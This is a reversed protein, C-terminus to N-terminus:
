QEGQTALIEAAICVGECGADGGTRRYWLKQNDPTLRRWLDALTLPSSPGILTQESSFVSHPQEGQQVQPAPANQRCALDEFSQGAAGRRIDQVNKDSPGELALVKTHPKTTTGQGEPTQEEESLPQEEGTLTQEDANLPQEEGGAHNNKKLTLMMDFNFRYRNSRRGHANGWGKEWTLVGAKKWFALASVVTTKTSYGTDLLLRDHSPFCLGNPDAYSALTILVHRFAPKPASLSFAAKVFRWASKSPGFKQVFNPM